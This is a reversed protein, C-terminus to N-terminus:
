CNSKFQRFSANEVQMEPQMKSGLFKLVLINLNAVIAIAKRKQDFIRLSSCKAKSIQLNAFLPQKVTQM